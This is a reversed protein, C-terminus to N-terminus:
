RRLHPSLAGRTSKPSAEDAGLEGGQSFSISPAIEANICVSVGRMKEMTVSIKEKLVSICRKEGCFIYTCPIEKGGQPLDHSSQEKGAVECHLSAGETTLFYSVPESIKRPIHGVVEGDHMVAVAFQDYKNNPERTCLYQKGIVPNWTEHYIHYGRVCWKLDYREM